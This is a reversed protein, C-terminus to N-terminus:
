FRRFVVDPEAASRARPFVERYVVTMLCGLYPLTVIFSLILMGSAAILTGIAVLGFLPWFNALAMRYSAEVAPVLDADKDTLLFPVFLSVTLSVMMAVLGLPWSVWSALATVVMVALGVLFAPLFYRFGAFLDNLTPAPQRDDALALTVLCCGVWLPGALIGMTFASLLAAVGYVAILVPVNKKWLEFASRLCRSIDLDVTM